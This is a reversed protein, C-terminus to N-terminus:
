GDVGECARDLAIKLECGIDQLWGLTDEIDAGNSSAENAKDSFDKFATIAAQIADVCDRNVVPGRYEPSSPSLTNLNAPYPM